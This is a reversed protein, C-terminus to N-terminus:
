GGSVPPILAIEDQPRIVTDEGAFENNVAVKLSTINRLGPYREMLIRKLEGVNEPLTEESLSLTVGGIIERTVGFLLIDNM